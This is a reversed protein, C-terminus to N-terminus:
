SSEKKFIRINFDAQCTFNDIQAIQKKVHESAKFAFPTMSLLNLTDQGTTLKM